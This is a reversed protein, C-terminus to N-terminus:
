SSNRLEWLSIFVNDFRLVNIWTIVLASSERWMSKPMFLGGVSKEFDNEETIEHMFDQGLGLNFV